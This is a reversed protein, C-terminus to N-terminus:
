PLLPLQLTLYQLRLYKQAALNERMLGYPAYERIKIKACMGTLEIQDIVIIIKVRMLNEHM